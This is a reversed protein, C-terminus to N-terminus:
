LLVMEEIDCEVIDVSYPRGSYSITPAHGISTDQSTHSRKRGVHKCANVTVRQSCANRTVRKRM